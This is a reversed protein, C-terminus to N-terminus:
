LDLFFFLLRLFLPSREAIFPFFWPTVTKVRYPLGFFLPSFRDLRVAKWGYFESNRLPMSLPPVPSFGGFGKGSRINHTWFPPPSSPVFSVTDVGEPLFARRALRARVLTQTSSQTLVFQWPFPSGYTSPPRARKRYGSFSFFLSAVTVKVIRWFLCLLGKYVGLLFSAKMFM